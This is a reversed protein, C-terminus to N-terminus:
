VKERSRDIGETEGNRGGDRGARIRWRRGREEGMELGRGERERM